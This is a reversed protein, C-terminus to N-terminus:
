RARRSARNLKRALFEFEIDWAAQEGGVAKAIQFLGFSLAVLLRTM